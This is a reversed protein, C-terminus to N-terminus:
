ASRMIVCNVGNAGLCLPALRSLVAEAQLWETFRKSLTTTVHGDPSIRLLVARDCNLDIHLCLEDGGGHVRWVALRGPEAEGM